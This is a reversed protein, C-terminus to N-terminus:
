DEKIRIKLMAFDYMLQVYTDIIDEEKIDPNINLDTVVKIMNPTIYDSINKRIASMIREDVMGTISKTFEILQQKDKFPSLICNDSFAPFEEYGTFYKQKIIINSYQEVGYIALRTPGYLLHAKALVRLYSSKASCAIAKEYKDSKSSDILELKYIECGHDFVIIDTCKYNTLLANTFYRGGWLVIKDTLINKYQQEIRRRDKSDIPIDLLHRHYGQIIYLEKSNLFSYVDIEKKNLTVHREPIFITKLFPDNYVSLKCTMLSLCYNVFQIGLEKTKNEQKKIISLFPKKIILLIDPILDNILANLGWEKGYYTINDRSLDVIKDSTQNNLNWTYDLYTTKFHHFSDDSVLIDRLYVKSLDILSFENNFCITITSGYKKEFIEFNLQDFIDYYWTYRYNEFGEPNAYPAKKIDSDNYLINEGNESKYTFTYDKIESFTNQVFSDIKNIYLNRNDGSVATDTYDSNYYLSSDISGFLEEFRDSDIDVKIKTGRKCDINEEVISSYQNNAASRFIIRKSTEGPYYTEVEFSQTVFFVSQLGIGFAATPRLWYPMAEYMKNYGADKLHSEGVHQTMRLLAQESIGTGHDTCEIHLIQKKDDKWTASLHIPYLGYIISPIDNPFQIDCIDKIENGLLPGYVGDKIDNWMQIKSADLANQVVERIFAFGPEKYIGGGQLIDFIKEQSMEFKINLLEPSAKIGNYLVKINNSSIVPPLGGLNDPVIHTWERRQSDVEKELMDFWIRSVRYVNENPCDLEAEISSPSILMHKVAAHKQQHIVSTEPMEKITANFFSNFRDNDFDLLDGLRIMCAIFRPHCYDTNYGDAKKHLMSLVKDFSQGHLFAVNSLLDLFRQPLQEAYFNDALKKIDENSKINNAGLEAHKNRFIEATLLIVANKTKLAWEYSEEYKDKQKEKEKDKEDDKEKNKEDLKKHLNIILKAADAIVRDESTAFEEIVKKMAKESWADELMQYTLVMGIDHTLGSMLLLFTDTASLKKIRDEGLFLQINKIVTMSHSVDHLSYNPYSASITNLGNSLNRKNLDWVSYLIEYEKDQETLHKLHKELTYSNSVLFEENM